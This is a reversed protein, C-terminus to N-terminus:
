GNEPVPMETIHVDAPFTQDMNTVEVVVAGDGLLLDIPEWAAFLQRMFPATQENERAAVRLAVSASIVLRRNSHQPLPGYVLVKGGGSPLSTIETHGARRLDLTKM